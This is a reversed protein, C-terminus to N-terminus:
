CQYIKNDNNKISEEVIRDNYDRNTFPIWKDDIKHSTYRYRLPCVHSHIVSFDNQSHCCCIM